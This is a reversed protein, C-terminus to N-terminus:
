EIRYSVLWESGFYGPKVTLLLRTKYPVVKTHYEESTLRVEGQRKELEGFEVVAYYSGRGRRGSGKGIDLVLASYDNSEAKDLFGNLIIYLGSGFVPFSVLSLVIMAMLDKSGRRTKVNWNFLFFATLLFVLAPIFSWQVIPWINDIQLLPYNNGVIWLGFGSLLLLVVLGIVIGLSPRKRQRLTQQQKPPFTPFTESKERSERIKKWFIFGIFILVILWLSFM